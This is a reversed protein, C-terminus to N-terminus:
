ANECFHSRKKIEIKKWTPAADYAKKVPPPVSFDISVSKEVVSREARFSSGPLATM